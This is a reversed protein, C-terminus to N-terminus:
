GRHAVKKFVDEAPKVQNYLKNQKAALDQCGRSVTETPVSQQAMEPHVASARNVPRRQGFFVQVNKPWGRKSSRWLVTLKKPVGLCTASNGCVNVCVCMSVCKQAPIVVAQELFDHVLVPVLGQILSALWAQPRNPLESGGADLM